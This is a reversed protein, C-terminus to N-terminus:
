HKQCSAGTSAVLENGTTEVRRVFIHWSPFGGWNEPWRTLISVRFSPKSFASEKLIHGNKAPKPLNEQSGWRKWASGLQRFSWRSSVELFETTKKALIKNWFPTGGLIANQLYISIPTELFLPVGLDDMKIPNEMIFWGNQPVGIKPFM